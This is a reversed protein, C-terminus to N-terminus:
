NFTNPYCQNILNYLNWPYMDLPVDGTYQMAYGGGLTLDDETVMYKAGKVKVVRWGGERQSGGYEYVWLKLRHTETKHGVYSHFRQNKAKESQTIESLMINEPDVWGTGFPLIEDKRIASCYEMTYIYWTKKMWDDILLVSQNKGHRPWQSYHQLSFLPAYMKWIQPTFVWSLFHQTM